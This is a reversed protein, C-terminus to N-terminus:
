SPADEPELDKLLENLLAWFHDEGPYGLIRGAEKGAHMLVFTPTYVVGTIQSLDGPLTEHIDVRRLPARKGEATKEYVVGIDRQWAECWPCGKTEFMILEAASSSATWLLSAAFLVTALLKQMRPDYTIKMM